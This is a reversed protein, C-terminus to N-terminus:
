KAQEGSEYVVYYKTYGPTTWRGKWGKPIAVAEGAKVEIVTGDSSTLPVTGSLFYCFEDEPYSNIDVDSPQQQVVKGGILTTLVKIDKIQDSPVTLPDASLVIFDALKGREISGKIKEEFGSYAGDITYGHIAQQITCSGRQAPPSCGQKAVDPIRNPWRRSETIADTQDM